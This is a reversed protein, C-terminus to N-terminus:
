RCGVVGHRGSVHTRVAFTLAFSSRRAANRLVQSIGRSPREKPGLDKAVADFISRHM